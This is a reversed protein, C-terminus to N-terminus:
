KGSSKKKKKKKELERAKRDEAWERQFNDYEEDSMNDLVDLFDLHETLSGDPSIKRELERDRVFTFDDYM